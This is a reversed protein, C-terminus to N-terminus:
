VVLYARVVGLVSGLNGNYFGRRGCFLLYGIALGLFDFLGGAVRYGVRERVFYGGVESFFLEDLVVYGFRFWRDRGRFM